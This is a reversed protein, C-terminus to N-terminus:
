ALEASGFQHVFPGSSIFSELLNSQERRSRIAV